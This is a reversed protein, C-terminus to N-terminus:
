IRAFTKGIDGPSAAQYWPLAIRDDPAARLGRRAKWPEFPKLIPRIGNWIPLIVEYSSLHHTADVRRYDTMNLPRRPPTFRTEELIAKFNAEVEICARMLLSHIRYSYTQRSENSPEIYEFISRLDDQILVFARVYHEADAAYAGDRIYAWRSYGSQPHGPKMERWNRHFPKPESM